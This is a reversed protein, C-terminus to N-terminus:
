PDLKALTLLLRAGPGGCGPAVSALVHRYDDDPINGQGGLSMGVTPGFSLSLGALGGGWLKHEPLGLRSETALASLM